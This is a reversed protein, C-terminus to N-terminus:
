GLLGPGPGPGGDFVLDNPSVMPLLAHFPVFVEKGEAALGLSM